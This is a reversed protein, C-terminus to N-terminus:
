HSAFSKNGKTSDILIPVDNNKVQSLMTEGTTTDNSRDGVNNACHWLIQSKYTGKM